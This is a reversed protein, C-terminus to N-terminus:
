SICIELWGITKEGRVEIEGFLGVRCIMANPIVLRMTRNPLVM